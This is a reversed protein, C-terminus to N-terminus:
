GKDPNCSRPVPHHYATEHTDGEMKRLHKLYFAQGCRESCFHLQKTTLGFHKVAVIADHVYVLEKCEDCTTHAQFEPTM